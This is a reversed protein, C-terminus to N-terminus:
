ASTPLYVEDSVRVVKGYRRRPSPLDIDPFYQKIIALFPDQGFAARIPEAAGFRPNIEFVFPQNREVRLQVNLCYIGSLKNILASIRNEVQRCTEDYIADQTVGDRLRTRLVAMCTAVGADPAFVVTCGYERHDSPLLDQAVFPAHKTQRDLCWAAFDGPGDVRRIGRSGYGFQPKLIYPYELAPQVPGTAQEVVQVTRPAFGGAESIAQATAFKDMFRDLVHIPEVIIRTGHRLARGAIRALPKLEFISCPIVLDPRRETVYKLIFETYDDESAVKSFYFDPSVVTQQALASAPCGSTVDCATVHLAAPHRALLKVAGYGIGSGAGTVLVNLM